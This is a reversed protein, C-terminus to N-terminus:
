GVEVGRLLGRAAGRDLLDDALEDVGLRGDLVVLEHRRDVVSMEKRDDFL